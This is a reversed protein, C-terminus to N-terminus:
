QGATEPQMEGALQKLANLFANGQLTAITYKLSEPDYLDGLAAAASESVGAPIVFDKGLVARLREGDNYFYEQLLPVIRHYWVFRLDDAGALGLFYSHGIQHDGDLLAAVRENLSILLRSLEVGAVTPLLSPNPTLEMFTIRRRLALDLLAISRDATNMTGLIYLNPPVGFRQGSYPLTVTIENAQGLRKDDEILTILEGFVKAINARNIEDILLLYKPAADPHDRWATEAKACIKRFVGPVVEYRIQTDGERPPQPKLGEVFEEYAFSQHFTVFEWQNKSTFEKAFRRAWYTKGCGPPGYLILNHTRALLGRLEQLSEPEGPTEGDLKKLSEEIEPDDPYRSRYASKIQQWEEDSVPTVASMLFKFPVKVEKTILWEVKRTHPTRWAVDKESQLVHDIDENREDGAPIYDSKVVGVGVVEGRGKNAVILDEKQINHSFRWISPAGGGKQGAKVLAQRVEKRSKFQLFDSGPLWAIAICKQDRCEKWLRSKEGPAVKWVKRTAPPKGNEGHPLCHYLFGMMQRTDFGDFEPLSRLKSLLQRNCALLDGKPEERLQDLFHRLHDLKYIPLFEEPFYLYLPKARLGHKSALYKAGIEDLNDFKKEEVATVLATLGQKIQALADEPNAAKFLKNWEWDKKNKDWWVGYKAVGGGEINGLNKTHVGLWWCFNNRDKRGMAYQQLTMEGLKEKPFCRVFEERLQRVDDPMTKPHSALWENLKGKWDTTDSM